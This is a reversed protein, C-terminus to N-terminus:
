AMTFGGTVPLHAGTIFAGEDGALFAVLRATDAPDALRRVPTRQAELLKERQPLDAVFETNTLGPSVANCTIGCPGLEAALSRM